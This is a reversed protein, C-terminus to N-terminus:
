KLKKKKIFINESTFTLINFYRRFGKTRKYRSLVKKIFQEKIVTENFSGSTGYVVIANRPPEFDRLANKRPILIIM